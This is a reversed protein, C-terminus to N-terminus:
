SRLRAEFELEIEQFKRALELGADVLELYEDNNLGDNNM